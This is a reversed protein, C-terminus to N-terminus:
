RRARVRHPSSTRRHLHDRCAFRVPPPSGGDPVVGDSRRYTPGVPRDGRDLQWARRRAWAVSRDLMDTDLPIGHREFAAVFVPLFADLDFWDKEILHVIWDYMPGSGRDTTESLRDTDIWYGPCALGGDTVAWEMDPRVVRRAAQRREQIRAVARRNEVIGM